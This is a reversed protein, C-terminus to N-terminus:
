FLSIEFGEFKICVKFVFFRCFSVGMLKKDCLFLFNDYGDCINDCFKIGKMIFM